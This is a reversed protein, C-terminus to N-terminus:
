CCLALAHAETSVCFICIKLLSAVLFYALTVFLSCTRDHSTDKQPALALHVTGFCIEMVICFQGQQKLLRCHVIAFSWTRIVSCPGTTDTQSSQFSLYKIATQIHHHPRLRALGPAGTEASVFKVGKHPGKAANKEEYM